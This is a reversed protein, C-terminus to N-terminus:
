SAKMFLKIFAKWLWAFKWVVREADRVDVIVYFHEENKAFKKAGSGTSFSLFTFSGRSINILILMFHNMLDLVAEISAKWKAWENNISSLSKMM